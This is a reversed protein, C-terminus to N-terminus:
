PTKKHATIIICHPCQLYNLLAPDNNSFSPSYPLTTVNSFGAQGFRNKLTELSYYYTPLTIDTSAECINLAVQSGDHLTDQAILRFGYPRYYEPDTSFNPSLTIAIIKGQPTLAQYMSQLLTLLHVKNVAYPLLYIAIVVDFSYHLISSMENIYQINKPTRAEHEQASKIMGISTDYGVVHKYGQSVLWRSIAGGGCGYDLIRVLADEGLWKKLNPLELMKRYPWLLSKNYFDALNNFNKM